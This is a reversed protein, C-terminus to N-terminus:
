IQPAKKDKVLGSKIAYLVAQTRNSLGLKKLINSIHFRVTANSLCLREAIAQNSLGEAALKLVEEERESLLRSQPLQQKPYEQKIESILRRAVVPSLSSKGQMIGRIAEILEQPSSDKLLYGLAGAKIASLIYTDDSFSSLVLIRTRPNERIIEQIAAVGDKHPMVMDMLIVDPQHIRALAAAELGSEAEAVLDMDKETALLMRVGKRVVAHDDVIMIKIRQQLRADESM